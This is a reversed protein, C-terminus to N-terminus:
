WMLSIGWKIWIFDLTYFGNLTRSHTIKITPILYIQDVVEYREVM